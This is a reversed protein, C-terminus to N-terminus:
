VDVREFTGVPIEAELLAEFQRDLDAYADAFRTRFQHYAHESTWRDLTLYECPLDPSRLLETGLYGDGRHFLRTWPGSPGYAEEFAAEQGPHPRFRWAIVYM